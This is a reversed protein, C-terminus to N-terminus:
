PRNIETGLGGEPPDPRLPERVGASGGGLFMELKEYINLMHSQLTKDQMGLATCVERHSGDEILCTVIERERATLVHAEGLLEPNDAM